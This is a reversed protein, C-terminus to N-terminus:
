MCITWSIQSWWKVPTIYKGGARQSWVSFTSSWRQSYASSDKELYATKLIWILAYNQKTCLNSHNNKKEKKFDLLVTWSFLNSGEFNSLSLCVQGIVVKQFKKDLFYQLCIEIKPVLVYFYSFFRFYNGWWSFTENRRCFSKNMVWGAVSVIYWPLHYPFQQRIRVHPKTCIIVSTM